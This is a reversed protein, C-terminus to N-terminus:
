KHKKFVIDGFFAIASEQTNDTDTMIAVGSINSPEEGFAKLYDEYVNHTETVWQHLKAPGSQTVIMQARDTYPNPVITGIPAQSEWIYNIASIPPYEGYLLKATEYKAKEFFGVKSSDYEFTIYIRAPYDDGDKSSVDGQELINEVKWRWQIIPFEKPNLSIKRTLGSSSQHSQARVVINNAEAVLTYRTHKQINDFTLPEWGDPFAGGPQAESFNGIRIVDTTTSSVVPSFSLFSFFFILLLFIPSPSRLAHKIWITM